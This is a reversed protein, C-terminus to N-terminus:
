GAMELAEIAKRRAKNSIVWRPISDITKRISERSEGRSLLGSVVAEALKPFGYEALAKSALGLAILAAIGGIMGAPGGLTALASTIAAAGAFGSTAMVALLVLGPVGLAVLSSVAKQFLGGPRSSAELEALRRSAEELQLKLEKAETQLRGHTVSIRGLLVALVISIAGFFWAAL